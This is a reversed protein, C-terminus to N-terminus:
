KAPLTGDVAIPRLERLTWGHMRDREVSGMLMAKRVNVAVRRGDATEGDFVVSVEVTVTGHNGLYELEADLGRCVVEHRQVSTCAAMQALTQATLPVCLQERTLERSWIIQDCYVGKPLRGLHAKQVALAVDDAVQQDLKEAQRRWARGLLLEQAIDGLFDLFM